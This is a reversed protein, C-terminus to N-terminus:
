FVVSSERRTVERHGPPLLALPSYDPRLSNEGIKSTTLCKQEDANIREPHIKFPSVKLVLFIDWSLASSLRLTRMVRGQPRTGPGWVQSKWAQRQRGLTASSGPQTARPPQVQGLIVLWPTSPAQTRKEQQDPKRGVQGWQVPNQKTGWFRM